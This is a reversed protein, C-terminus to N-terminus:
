PVLSVLAVVVPVVSAGLALALWGGSSRWGGAVLLATAAVTSARAAVWEGHTSGGSEGLAISYTDLLLLTAIVFLLAALATAAIGAATQRKPGHLETWV